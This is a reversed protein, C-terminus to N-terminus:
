KSALVASRCGSFADLPRQYSPTQVDLLGLVTHYLNDHTL